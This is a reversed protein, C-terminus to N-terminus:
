KFLSKTFKVSTGKEFTKFMATLEQSEGEQYSDLVLEPVDGRISYIKVFQHGAVMLKGDLLSVPYLTGQSRISGLAVIKDKEDLAFISAEIAEKDENVNNGFTEQSVLLVKRGSVEAYAFSATESFHEAFAEFPNYEEPTMVGVGEQNCDSNGKSGNRNCSTMSLLAIIVLLISFQKM